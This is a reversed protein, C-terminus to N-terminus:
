GAVLTVASGRLYGAGADALARYKGRASIPFVFTGDSRTTTTAVTRWTGDSRQRSLTVTVGSKAPGLTGRLRRPSVTTFVVKTRV